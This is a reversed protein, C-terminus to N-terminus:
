WFKLGAGRKVSADVGFFLTEALAANVQARHVALYQGESQGSGMVYSNFRQAPLKLHGATFEALPAKESRYHFHAYALPQKRRDLIVYEQLYDDPRSLRVRGEIKLIQVEGQAKLYDIRNAEPPNRKIVDIRILRGQERLTAGAEALDSLVQTKGPDRQAIKGRLAELQRARDCLVAELGIPSNSTQADNWAARIQRPQEELLVRADKLLRKLSREPPPPAPQPDVEEWLDKEPSQRYSAVPVNDVPDVVDVIEDPEQPTRARAVGVLIRKDRTRVMRRRSGATAQPQPVSLPEPVAESQRAQDRLLLALSHEAEGRLAEVLSVLRATYHSNLLESLTQQYLRLSGLVQTYNGVVDGLAQVREEVTMFGPEQLARHSRVTWTARDTVDKLVIFDYFEAEVPARKLLLGQLTSVQHVKWDMPSLRRQVTEDPSGVQPAYGPAAQLETDFAQELSGLDILQQNFEAMQSLYGVTNDHAQQSTNPDDSELQAGWADLTERAPTAAKRALVLLAAREQLTHVINQLQEILETEFGPLPRNANRIKLTELRQIQCQNQERLAAQYRQDISRRLADNFKERETRHVRVYYDYEKGATEDAMVQARTQQEYRQKFDAERALIQARRQAGSPKPMGGALRLRLDFQWGGAADRKLWPGFRGPQRPDAVRFGEPAEMVPYLGGRILAHLTFRDGGTPVRILGKRAGQTEINRETVPWPQRGQRWKYSDLLTQQAPSLEGASHWGADMALLDARGQRRLQRLSAAQEVHAPPRTTAPGVDTLGIREDLGVAPYLLIQVLSALADVIAAARREDDADEPMTILTRASLLSQYLWGVTALPGRMLPLFVNFLQWLDNRFAAWRQEENSRSQAEARRVLAQANTTFVHALFDGPVQQDSLLAPAPVEVPAFEGGRGQRQIHPQLFGGKGLVARGQPDLSNLVETQLPGVHAIADLLEQRSAWQQLQADSGPRYLLHPLLANDRPGIVFMNAAPYGRGGAHTLFALPRAVIEHGDVKRAEVSAQVLAQVWQVGKRTLGQRRRLLCELAVLPLQARAQGVFLAQRRQREAPDDLLNRKLLAPYHKGIDVAPILRKVYDITLWWDPIYGPEVRNTISVHAYSETFPNDLAWQTLTRSTSQTWGVTGGQTRTFTLMYDDPNIVVEQPHDRLMRAQLAKRAYVHIPELGDLFNAGQAEVQAAHVADLLRSAHLRDAADAGQLWAPLAQEPMEGRAPSTVFWAQPATLRHFRQKYWQVDPFDSWRLAQLDRLQKELLVQAMADFVDDQPERVAWEVRRGTYRRSMHLPLLNALDELGHLRQLGTGPSYLYYTSVTSPRSELLLVVLWEGVGGEECAYVQYVRLVGEGLRRERESKLPYFRGLLTRYEDASLPPAQPGSMLCRRLQEAVIRWRTSLLDQRPAQSWYDVLRAQFAELLSPAVRNVLVELEDVSPSPTVPKWSADRQRDLLVDANASLNLLTGQMIRKLLLDGLSLLPGYTAPQDQDAPALIRALRLRRVNLASAPWQDDMERQLVAEAVEELRPRDAFVQGLYTRSQTVQDSTTSTTSM